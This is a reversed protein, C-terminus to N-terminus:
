INVYCFTNWFQWNIRIEYSNAYYLTISVTEDLSIHQVKLTNADPFYLNQRLKVTQISRCLHKAYFQWIYKLFHFFYIFIALQDQNRIFKCLKFHYKTGHLSIRQVKLINAVLFYLNQWLKATRIPGCPRNQMCINIIVYHFYVSHQWFNRFQYQCCCCFLCVFLCVFLEKNLFHAIPSHIVCWWKNAFVM